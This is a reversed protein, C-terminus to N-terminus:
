VIGTSNDLGTANANSALATALVGFSLFAHGSKTHFSALSVFGETVMIRDRSILM